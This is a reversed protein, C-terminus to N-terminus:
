PAETRDHVVPEHHILGPLAIGFYAEVDQRTSGSYAGVWSKLVTGAPSIVLTMALLPLDLKVGNM